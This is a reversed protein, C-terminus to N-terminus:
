KKGEVFYGDIQGKHNVNIRGRHTCNFRHKVRERTM